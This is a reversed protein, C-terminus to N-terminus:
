FFSKGISRSARIQPCKQTLFCTRKQESLSATNWMKFVLVELTAQRIPNNCLRSNEVAWWLKKKEEWCTGPTWLWDASAKDRKLQCSNQCKAGSAWGGLSRASKVDGRKFLLAVGESELGRGKLTNIKVSLITSRTRYEVQHTGDRLNEVDLQCISATNKAEKKGLRIWCEELVGGYMELVGSGYRTALLPSPEHHTAIVWLYCLYVPWLFTVINNMRFCYHGLCENYTHLVVSSWRCTTFQCVTIPRWSRDHVM